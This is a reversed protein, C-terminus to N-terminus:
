REFLVTCSVDCEEACLPSAAKVGLFGEVETPFVQPALSFEESWRM